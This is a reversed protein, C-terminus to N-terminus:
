RDNTMNLHSRGVKQWECTNGENNNGNGKIAKIPWFDYDGYSRDGADNLSMNGTIGLHSNANELFARKLSNVDNTGKTDNETLSAVWFADYTVEAYSRPTRDIM